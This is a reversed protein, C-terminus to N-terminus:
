INTLTTNGRTSDEWGTRYLNLNSILYCLKMRRIEILFPQDDTNTSNTNSIIGEDKFFGWVVGEM